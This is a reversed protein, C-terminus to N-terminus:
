EIPDSIDMNPHRMIANGILERTISSKPVAVNSPAPLEIVCTLLIHIVDLKIPFLHSFPPRTYEITVTQSLIKVPIMIKM